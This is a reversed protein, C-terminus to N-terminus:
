YRSTGESGPNVRSVKSSIRKEVDGLDVEDFELKLEDVMKVFDVDELQLANKLNAIRNPDNKRQIQDVRSYFIGLLVSSIIMYIAFLSSRYGKFWIPAM